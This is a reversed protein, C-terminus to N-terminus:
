QGINAALLAAEEDEDEPEATDAFSKEIARLYLPMKWLDGVRMRAHDFALAVNTGNDAEEVKETEQADKSNTVDGEAGGQDDPRPELRPQALYSPMNPYRSSFHTLITHRAGMRKGADVAQGITSHAKKEAMATQDDGMTAEHILVTAGKGAEVLADCPLTDGSYVM